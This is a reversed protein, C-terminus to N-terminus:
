LTLHIKPRDCRQCLKQAVPRGWGRSRSGFTVPEQEDLSPAAPKPRVHVVDEAAKQQGLDRASGWHGMPAFITQVTVSGIGIRKLEIELRERGKADRLDDLGRVFAPDEPWLPWGLRQLVSRPRVPFTEVRLQGAGDIEFARFSDNDAVKIDM